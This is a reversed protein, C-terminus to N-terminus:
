RASRAVQRRFEVITQVTVELAEMWGDDGKGYPVGDVSVIGDDYAGVELKLILGKDQPSVVVTMNKRITELSAPM